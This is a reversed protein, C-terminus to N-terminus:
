KAGKSFLSHVKKDANDVLIVFGCIFALSLLCWICYRMIGSITEVILWAIQFSLLHVLYIYFSKDGIFRVVKNWHDGLSISEISAVASVLIGAICAWAINDKSLILGLVGYLAIAISAQAQKQEKVGYYVLIGISFQNLTGLPSAGGLGDLNDIPAVNGFIINLLGKWVLMLLFSVILFVEARRLSRVWKMIFPAFVYFWIFCSMTWWGYPNNWIEYANSPLVTNLGLFFRGWGLHYIDTPLNQVFLMNFIIAVLIATYYSPFIRVARNKLYRGTDNNRDLSATALYGSLVFFLQVGYGGWTFLPRIKDPLPLYISLHVWVVSLMAIVRLIDFGINHKKEMDVSGFATIKGNQEKEDVM